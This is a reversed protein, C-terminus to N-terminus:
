DAVYVIFFWGADSDVLFIEYLLIGVLTAPINVLASIASYSTGGAPDFILL